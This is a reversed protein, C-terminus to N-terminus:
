NIKSWRNVGNKNKKITWMNGDNGKKKTGVKFITASQSPSPRHSKNSKNSKDKTSTKKSLNKIPKKEYNNKDKLKKLPIKLKLIRSANKKNKLPDSILYEDNVYAHVTSFHGYEGIFKEINYKMPFRNWWINNKYKNLPKGTKPNIYDYNFFSEYSVDYNNKKLLKYCNTHLIYSKNFSFGIYDYYSKGDKGKIDSETTYNQSVGKIIKNPTIISIDNMWNFKKNKKLSKSLIKIENKTLIKNVIYKEDDIADELYDKFYEDNLIYKNKKLIKKLLDKEDSILDNTLSCGCVICKIFIIGGGKMM